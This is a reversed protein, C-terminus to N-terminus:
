TLEVLRNLTIQEGHGINYLPRRHCSTSLDPRRPELGLGARRFAPSPRWAM